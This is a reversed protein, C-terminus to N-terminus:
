RLVPTFASWVVATERSQVTIKSITLASPLFSIFALLLGGEIVANLRVTSHGDPDSGAAFARFDAAFAALTVSVEALSDLM